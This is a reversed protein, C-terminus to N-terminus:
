TDGIILINKRQTLMRHKAFKVFRHSWSVASKGLRVVYNAYFSSM